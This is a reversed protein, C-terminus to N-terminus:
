AAPHQDPDQGDASTGAEASRGPRVRAMGPRYRTSPPVRSGRQVLQQRQRRQQKHLQARAAKLKARFVAARDGGITNDRRYGSGKGKSM